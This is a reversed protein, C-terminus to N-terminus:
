QGNRLEEWLEKAMTVGWLSFAIIAVVMIVGVLLMFLILLIAGIFEILAM